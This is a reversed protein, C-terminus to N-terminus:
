AEALASRPRAAVQVLSEVALETPAHGFVPDLDIAECHGYRWERAPRAHNIPRRLVRVHMRFGPDECLDAWAADLLGAPDTLLEAVREGDFLFTGVLGDLRRRRAVLLKFNRLQGPAIRALVLMRQPPANSPTKMLALTQPGPRWDLIAGRM